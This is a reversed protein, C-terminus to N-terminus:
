DAGKRRGDGSAAALTPPADQHARMRYSRGRINVVVANNFPRTATSTGSTQM